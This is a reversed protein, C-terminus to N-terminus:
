PATGNCLAADEGATGCQSLVWYGHESENELNPDFDTIIIGGALSAGDVGGIIGAYSGGLPDGADTEISTGAYTGDEAIDGPTLIITPVVSADGVAIGDDPNVDRDLTVRNFISGNILMDDFNVNLFIKGIVRGPAQMQISPDTGAPLNPVPGTFNDLGVCDGAYSVQGTGFTSTSDPPDFDGDREFYVGSFFRNFQGGDSVVGGRVTGDASESVIATFFRDLPDEQLTYALYCDPLNAEAGLNRAFTTVAEPSSDLGGISVTITEATADFTLATLNSAIAEPIGNEEPTDTIDDETPTAGIEGFPNGDCATFLFVAALAMMPKRM